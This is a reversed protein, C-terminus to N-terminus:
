VVIVPMMFLKVPEVVTNLTPSALRPPIIVSLPIVTVTACEPVVTVPTVTAAVEAVRVKPLATVEVM